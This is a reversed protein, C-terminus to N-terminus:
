QITPIDDGSLASRALAPAPWQRTFQGPASWVLAVGDETEARVRWYLKVDAPYSKNSTYAVSDTTVDDLVNGFDGDRAVQLHYKRADPVASWSFVLQDGRDFTPGSLTPPVSQKQFAGAGAQLPDGVAQQGNLEPAPLIAWYYK